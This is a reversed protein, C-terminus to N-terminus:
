WYKALEKLTIHIKDKSLTDVRANKIPRASRFKTSVFQNPYPVEPTERFANDHYKKLQATNTACDPFLITKGLQKLSETKRDVNYVTLSSKTWCFILYLLSLDQKLAAVANALMIDLWDNGKKVSAMAFSKTEIAVAVKNELLINLDNNEIKFHETLKEAFTKSHEQCVLQLCHDVDHRLQVGHEEFYISETKLSKRIEDNKRQQMGNSAPIDNRVFYVDNTLKMNTYLTAEGFVDVLFQITRYEWGRTWCTLKQGDPTVVFHQHVLFGSRMRDYRHNSKIKKNKMGKQQNEHLKERDATSM